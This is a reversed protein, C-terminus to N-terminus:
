VPQSEQFRLAQVITAEADERAMSRTWLRRENRKIILIDSASATIARVTGDMYVSKTDYPVVMSSELRELVGPWALDNATVNYERVDENSVQHFLLAILPWDSSSHIDNWRYYANSVKAEQNWIDTFVQAYDQLEVKSEKDVDTPSFPLSVQIEHTACIPKSAESSYANYFFDIGVNCMDRVQDREPESLQYLDFIADDLKRELLSVAKDGESHGQTKHRISKAGVDASRLSDVIDIIRDVLVPDSPFCVPMREIEELHLEYHWMGWTSSTLFYYYRALSSWFIGLLVKYEWSKGNRLKIGHISNRFCFRQSALRAIIQGKSVVSQTIGRKILLRQGEYVDRVGRRHVKAPVSEFDTQRMAGYRHFNRTPLYQYEALWGASKQDPVSQKSGDLKVIKTGREKFGQGTILRSKEKDQLEVLQVNMELWNILARDRSNGWWYVKWLRDERMLDTQPVQHLDSSSLVVAQLRNAQATHKASWYRVVNDEACDTKQFIVSAFPAIGAHFFIERVHAFNVVEVIKSKQLWERRFQVSKPHHKFFVGTSVLLGAYGGQKLLDLTKWIFAQSLEEDGVPLGRNKCWRMALNSESTTGWPPNGVVVDPKEQIFSPYHREDVSSSASPNLDPQLTVNFTNAKLLVNFHHENTPQAEDYKLHPLRQRQEIQKIIDRPELYHLLALYLSFAAVHVAEENIEIGAIQTRLINRLDHADLKKASGEQIRFRVIRRFAEVLFIGSGCAPDLIRPRSSLREPTLVRSLVFDVLASPTYHTATEDSQTMEAHYFEEYISSILEVPVIDFQYAWLFLRQQPDVDGLLFRRLLALHEKKVSERETQDSPFMDGNFDEALRDYLAYTFRHDSLVRVYLSKAAKSGKVSFQPPKRLADLWRRNTGAVQKFYERSLVGRDELYRIFISRGILAHAYRLKKGTLGEQMLATRAARLDRILSQDARHTPDGFREDEFLRGSEVQERRYSKLKEAVETVSRVVDLPRARWESLTKVPPKALNYVALEGDRAVFLLTPRAMCWVRNFLRLAEIEKTSSTAFVIVPNDRVFFIKEAGLHKALSLWEGKEVWQDAKLSSPSDTAPLLEGENLQLYAYTADLLSRASNRHRPM